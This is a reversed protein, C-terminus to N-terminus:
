DGVSRRAIGNILGYASGVIPLGFGARRVLFGPWRSSSLGGVKPLSFGSM